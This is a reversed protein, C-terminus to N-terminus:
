AERERSACRACAERSVPAAGDLVGVVEALLRRFAARDLETGFWGSKARYFWDGYRDRTVGVPELAFVGIESIPSVRLIANEPKELAVVYAHLQRWHAALQDPAPIATAFDLVGFTGNEFEIVADVRGHIQVRSDSGEVELPQSKALRETAVFRGRRLEPILTETRDGKFRRQLFGRLLSSVSTKPTEERHGNARIEYWFCAKCGCWGLALHSPSLTYVSGSPAIPDSAM